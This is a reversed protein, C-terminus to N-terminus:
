DFINLGRGEQRKVPTKKKKRPSAPPELLVVPATQKRRKRAPEYHQETLAEGIGSKVLNGVNQLSERARKKLTTKVDKGQVIDGIAQTGSRLLSKGAKKLIPVFTRKALPVVSRLIAGFIGSGRQYPVGRFIPYGGGGKQPNYHAVFDDTNPHYIVCKACPAM